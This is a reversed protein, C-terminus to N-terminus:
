ALGDGQARLHEKEKGPHRLDARALSYPTVGQGRRQPEIACAVDVGVLAPKHRRCDKTLVQGSGKLSAVAGPSRAATALRLEVLTAATQVSEYSPWVSKWPLGLAAGRARNACRAPGAVLLQGADVLGARQWRTRLWRATCPCRDALYALHPLTVLYQKAIFRLLMRDRESLVRVVHQRM